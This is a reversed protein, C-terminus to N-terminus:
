DEARGTEKVRLRIVAIAFFAFPLPLIFPIQHSVNDYLWGGMLQGAAMAAMTFFGVSGNVTGRLKQPTLDALLSNGASNFLVQLLGFLTMAGVLRWFDGWILLPVSVMWLAYALYLPKKRGMKDILKGAPLSTVIMTVFLVTMIYSYSVEGITLDKIIYLALFPLFLGVSFSTAVFSLFFYFASRPVKRWVSVSGKVSLPMSATLEKLDVKATTTLTERLRLRLLAAILFGLLTVTYGVRMSSLLGIKAYLIGALLPAPTTSVSAILGIISFAIGRREKPVSDAVLATLAPGYLNTAGVLFAGLLIWTWSSAFIYLLRSFAATFTMSVILWKRGFKDALYGGPIQFIGRAIGEVANILGITAATGGLAEVYLAYYTAPLESAFDLVLWSTMMIAFNGAIFGFEGALRERISLPKREIAM